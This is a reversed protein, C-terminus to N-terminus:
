YKKRAVTMPKKQKPPKVEINQIKELSEVEKKKEAEYRIVESRRDSRDYVVTTRNSENFKEFCADKAESLVNTEFFTKYCRCGDSSEDTEVVVYYKDGDDSWHHEKSERPVFDDEPEVNVDQNLEIEDELEEQVDECNQKKFVYGCKCVATRVGVYNQCSSCQKKGRSPQM